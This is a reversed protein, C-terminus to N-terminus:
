AGGAKVVVVRDGLFRLMEDVFESWTQPERSVLSAIEAGLEDDTGERASVIVSDDTFGPPVIGDADGDVVGFVPIGLHAAIHGCIATTDDGISLVGCVDRGLLTYLGAACHDVVVIRGTVPASPAIVPSRKRVQGSKCWAAALDFPGTRALKELGHPKPILGSVPTVGSETEKIVVTDSSAHGIVIGNVFVPEGPLCGRIARSTSDAAHGESRMVVMDFGLADALQRAIPLNGGGWSYVTSARCEAQVLGGEGLHSSVIEGFIRGSEKTKGRSALFASPLGRLVVSPPMGAFELPIGSEEAATRAMVGAVIVRVPRILDILSEADGEDFVEPGHLVLIPRSARVLEAFRFRAAAEHGALTM